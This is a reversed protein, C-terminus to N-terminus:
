GSASADALQKPNAVLMGTLYVVNGERGPRRDISAFGGSAAIPNQQLMKAFFAQAADNGAEWQFVVGEIVKDGPEKGPTVAAHLQLRQWERPLHWWADMVAHFLETGYGQRTFEPRLIFEATPTSAWTPSTM